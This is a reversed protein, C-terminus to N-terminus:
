VSQLPHFDDAEQEGGQERRARHPSTETPPHLLLSTLKQRGEEQEEGGPIFGHLSSLHFLLRESPPFPPLPVLQPHTLTHWRERLLGGPLPSDRLLTPLSVPLNFFFPSLFCFRWSTDEGRKKTLQASQLGKRTIWEAVVQENIIQKQAGRNEVGAEDERRRRLGVVSQESRSPPPSPPPLFPTYLLLILLCM